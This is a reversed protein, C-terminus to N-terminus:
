METGWAALLWGGCVSGGGVKSHAALSEVATGDELALAQKVEGQGVILVEGAKTGVVLAAESGGSGAADGDLLWAHCTYGQAERKTLATPLARLTNGVEIQYLWCTGEGVVSILQPDDGASRHMLAPVTCCRRTPRNPPLSGALACAHANAPTCNAQVGQRGGLLVCGAPLCVACCCAGAAHRHPRIGGAQVEGVGVPVADLRPRRGAGGAPAWRRQVGGVCVGAPTHLISHSPPLFGQLLGSICASRRSRRRRVKAADGPPALVKRRKLTQADFVTITSREPGREALALLRKAPCAAYATPRAEPGGALLRQVRADPQYLM